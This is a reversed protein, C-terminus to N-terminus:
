QATETQLAILTLMYEGEQRWWGSAQGRSTKPVGDYWNTTLSDPQAYSVTLPNWDEAAEMGLSCNIARVDINLGIHLAKLAAEKASWLLTILRDKDECQHISAQEEPTFYDEVFADIRPEIHELDVGVQLGEGEIVACVAHDGSHSISLSYQPFDPCYPAGNAHNFIRIASHPANTLQHLLQKATWRGMLWDHARKETKLQTFIGWEQDSLLGEPPTAHKLAPHDDITQILWHIMM